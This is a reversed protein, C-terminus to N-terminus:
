KFFFDFDDKNAFLREREGEEKRLKVFSKM